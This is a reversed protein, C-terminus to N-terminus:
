AHPHTPEEDPDPEPGFELERKLSEIEDIADTFRRALEIEFRTTVIPDQMCIRQILEEDPVNELLTVTHLVSM